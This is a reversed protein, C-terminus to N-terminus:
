VHALRDRLSGLVCWTTSRNRLEDCAWDDGGAVADAGAAVARALCAHNKCGSLPSASLFDLNRGDCDFRGANRHDRNGASSM